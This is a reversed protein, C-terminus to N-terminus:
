GRQQMSFFAIAVAVVGSIANAVIDRNVFHAIALAVLTITVLATAATATMRVEATLAAMKMVAAAVVIVWCWQGIMARAAMEMASKTVTAMARTARAMVRM